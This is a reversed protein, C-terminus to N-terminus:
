SYDLQKLASCAEEYQRLVQPLYEAAPQPRNARAEAEMLACTQSLQLAALNGSSSKLGHAAQRIAEADANEAAQKLSAIQGDASETFAALLQQFRPWKDGCYYDTLSKLIAPDLVEAATDQESTSSDGESDAPQLWRDVLERLSQLGFPKSLYDDM